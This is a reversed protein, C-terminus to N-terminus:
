NIKKFEVNRARAISVKFADIQGNKNKSFKLDAGAEKMQFTDKSGSQLPYITNANLRIM